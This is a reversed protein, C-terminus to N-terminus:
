SGAFHDFGKTRFPLEIGDADVVSLGKTETIVGIVALQTGSEQM